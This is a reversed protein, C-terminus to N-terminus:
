QLYFNFICFLAFKNSESTVLLEIIGSLSNKSELKKLFQKICKKKVSKDLVWSKAKICALHKM